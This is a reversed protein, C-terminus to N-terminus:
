GSHHVMECAQFLHTLEQQWTRMLSFNMGVRFRCLGVIGQWPLPHSQMTGIFQMLATRIESWWMNDPAVIDLFSRVENFGVNEVTLMSQVLEGPDQDPDPPVPWVQEGHAYLYANIGEIQQRSRVRHATVYM